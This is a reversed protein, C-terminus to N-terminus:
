PLEHGVAVPRLAGFLALTHRSLLELLHIHLDRRTFICCDLSSSRSLLNRGFICCGLSSSRSSDKLDCVCWRGGVLAREVLEGLREWREFPAPWVQVIVLGVIGIAAVRIRDLWCRCGVVDVSEFSSKM